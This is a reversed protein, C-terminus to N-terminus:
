SKELIWGKSVSFGVKELEFLFIYKVWFFYKHWKVMM